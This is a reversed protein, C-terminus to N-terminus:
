SCLLYLISLFCYGEAEVLVGRSGGGEAFSWELVSLRFMSLLGVAVTFYKIERDTFKNNM